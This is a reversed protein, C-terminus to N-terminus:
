LQESILRTLGSFHHLASEKSAETTTNTDKASNVELLQEYVHSSLIPKLHSEANPAFKAKDETLHIALTPIKLLPAGTHHFLGSHM